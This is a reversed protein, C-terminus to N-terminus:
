NETRKTSLVVDVPLGWLSLSTVDAIEFGASKVLQEVYIPRCDVVSPFRTHAWEYLSVMIGRSGNRSIAVICMRGGTKLVRRCQQLVPVLEPTDFLELTFSMFVADFSGDAYPLNLADGCSLEARGALGANQLRSQSIDRMRDSIDIGCVKGSDGVCRAVELICHGTGFGIELVSEGEKVQLKRLGAKAYKKESRGVLLDYQSSM